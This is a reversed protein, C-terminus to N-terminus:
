FDVLFCVSFATGSKIEKVTKEMRVLGTFASEAHTQTDFGFVYNGMSEMWPKLMLGHRSDSVEVCVCM